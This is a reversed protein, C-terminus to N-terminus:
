LRLVLKHGQGERHRGKHAHSLTLQNPSNGDRNKSNEQLKPEVSGRNQINVSKQNEKKRMIADLQSLLM